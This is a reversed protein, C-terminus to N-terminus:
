KLEGPEVQTEAKAKAAEVVAIAREKLELLGSHALFNPILVDLKVFTESIFKYMEEKGGQPNLAWHPVRHHFNKIWFLTAGLVAEIFKDSCELAEKLESGAEMGKIVRWVATAAKSTDVWQKRIVPLKRALKANPAKLLQAEIGEIQGFLRREDKRLRALGDAPEEGDPIDYHATLDEVVLDSDEDEYETAVAVRDQVNQARWQRVAEAGQDIPAGDHKYKTLLSKSIGLEKALHTQNVPM